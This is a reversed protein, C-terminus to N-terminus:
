CASETSRMQDAWRLVIAVAELLPEPVLAPVPLKFLARALEPNRIIPVGHGQAIERIHAAAEDVGKAVIVPLGHGKPDYHLAVAYHTPNVVVANATAVAPKPDSHAIEHALMNRASKMHPDGEAERYERKVEDKSMKQQKLFLLRQIVFDLVGLILFLVACVAMLHLMTDWATKGISEFTGFGSRLLLPAVSRILVYLIWGIIVAKVVMKLVEVLSRLSVIRKVGAVPDISDFKPTLPAFSVLVGVHSMGGVVAGLMAALLVPATVWLGDVMLALCHAYLSAGLQEPAPPSIDGVSRIISRLRDLSQSGTAILAVLAFLFAGASSLDRSHAVQGKKRADELKQDTAPETKETSV